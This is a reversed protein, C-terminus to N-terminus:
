KRGCNCNRGQNCDNTCNSEPLRRVISVVVAAIILIFLINM